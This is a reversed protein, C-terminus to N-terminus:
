FYFYDSNNFDRTALDVLVHGVTMTRLRSMRMALSPLFKLDDIGNTYCPQILCQLLPPPWLRAGFACAKPPPPDPPMSGRSIKLIIKDSFMIEQTKFAM